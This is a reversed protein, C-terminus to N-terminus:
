PKVKRATRPGTSRVKATSDSALATAGASQIRELAKEALLGAAVSIFAIVFPSISAESARHSESIAVFSTRSLIYFVLACMVSLTARLVISYFSPYARADGALFMTYSHFLFSGLIGTSIVLLIVIFEPPSLVIQRFGPGVVKSALGDYFKYYFVLESLLSDSVGATETPKKQTSDTSSHQVTFAVRQDSGLSQAASPQITTTKIDGQPLEASGTSCYGILTTRVDATILSSSQGTIYM